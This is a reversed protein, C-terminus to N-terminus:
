GSSGRVGWARATLHVSGDEETPLRARVADRLTSRDRESLSMAYSPAPGQGGLFPVWYDDFGDFVTPIVIATVDVDVLGSEAFLERLPDPRCLAFRLGEHLSRAAPDLELAAEWFHTMLQMGEAYDWVYAAVVGGPSAARRMERLAAPKDGVFNLMLGSVVADCCADDVPLAVADGHLFRARPDVVHAAAHAVFGDSPDVGVVGSPRTQDLVAQTLAGTGCGVDLWRAGAPVALWAVFSHAVLRSWRGVYSEYSEGSTWRQGVAADPDM